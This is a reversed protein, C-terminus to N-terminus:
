KYTSGIVMRMAESTGEYIRTIRADRWLREANYDRTYGYGGHIQINEDAVACAVESNKLKAKAAEVSFRKGEASKALAHYLLFRGSDIDVRMDAFKFQTTQFQSIPKGFQVRTQAYSVAESFAQEAMGLAGAAVGLRGYDLVSLAVRLGKGKPGLINEAPVIVDEFHVPCTKSSRIGLKKEPPGVALGDSGGAVLFATPGDDSGCIVVFFKAIDASTIFQKDGNLVYHDGDAVAKAKISFVDTGAGPETLCFSTIAGKAMQPLYQKKQEDSGFLEVTKCGLSLHAAILTVLGGNARAFEEIICSSAFPDLGMGGYEEAITFGLYGLENMETLLNEPIGKEDLDRTVPFVRKECFERAMAGFELQEETLEFSTLNDEKPEM